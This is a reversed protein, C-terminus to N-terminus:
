WPERAATLSCCRSPETQSEGFTTQPPQLKTLATSMAPCRRAAAPSTAAPPVATCEPWRGSQPRCLFEGCGPDFRSVLPDHIVPSSPKGVVHLTSSALGQKAVCGWSLTQQFGHKALPLVQYNVLLTDSRGSCDLYASHTLVVCANESGPRHFNNVM